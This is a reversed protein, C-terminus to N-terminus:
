ISSLNPTIQFTKHRSPQLISRHWEHLVTSQVDVILVLNRAHPDHFYRCAHSVLLRRPPVCCELETPLLHGMPQMIQMHCCVQQSENSTHPVSAILSAEFRNILSMWLRLINRLQPDVIAATDSNQRSVIECKRSISIFCWERAHRLYNSQSSVYYAHLEWEACMYGSTSHMALHELNLHFCSRGITDVGSVILQTHAYREYLWLVHKRFPAARLM